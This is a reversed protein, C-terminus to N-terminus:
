ETQCHTVFCNCFHFLSFCLSISRDILSFVVNAHQGNQHKTQPVCFPPLIDYASFPNFLPVVSQTHPRKKSKKKAQRRRDRDYILKLVNIWVESLLVKENTDSPLFLSLRTQCTPVNHREGQLPFCRRLTGWEAHLLMCFSPAMHLGFAVICMIYTKLLIFQDQLFFHTGTWQM